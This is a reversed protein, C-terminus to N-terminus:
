AGLLTRATSGGSPGQGNGGLLSSAGSSGSLYTSARGQRQAAQQAQAQQAALTNSIDPVPANTSDQGPINPKDLINTVGLVDTGGFTFASALGKGINGLSPHAIANAVTGVLPIGSKSM